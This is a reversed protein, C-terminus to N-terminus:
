EAGHGPVTERDRSARSKLAVSLTEGACRLATRWQRWGAIAGTGVPKPRYLVYVQYVRLQERAALGTMIVNPAFAAPPILPLLTALKSRRILRYPANVDWMGRGFLLRVIARSGTRIIRRALREHAGKRCGLLLDYDARRVWLHEFSSPTMEDDSDTQFVWEGRAERYGKSITPGHGMNLHRSVVLRKHRKAIEGLVEPTRDRSGDDYVLFEYSVGLRDLEGLWSRIVSEVTGAENYVPMVVSLEFRDPMSSQMTSTGIRAQM